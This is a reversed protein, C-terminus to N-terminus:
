ALDANACEDLAAHGRSITAPGCLSFDTAQVLNTCSNEVPKADSYTWVKYEEAQMDLM